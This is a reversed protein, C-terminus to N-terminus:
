ILSSFIAYFHQQKELNTCLTQFNRLFDLKIKLMKTLIWWKFTCFFNRSFEFHNMNVLMQIKAGFINLIVVRIESREYFQLFSINELRIKLIFINKNETNFVGPFRSIICSKALTKNHEQLFAITKWTHWPCRRRQESAGTRGAFSAESATLISICKCKMDQSIRMQINLPPPLTFPWTWYQLGKMFANQLAKQSLM